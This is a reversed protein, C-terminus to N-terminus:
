APLTGRLAEQAERYGDPSGCDLRREQPLLPVVMGSFGAGLAANFVPTMSLEGEAPLNSAIWEGM